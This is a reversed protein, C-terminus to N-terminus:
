CNVILRFRSLQSLVLQYFSLDVRNFRIGKAGAIALVILKEVYFEVAGKGHKFLFFVLLEGM